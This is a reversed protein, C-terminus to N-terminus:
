WHVRTVTNKPPIVSDNNSVHSLYVVVEFLSEPIPVGVEDYVWLVPVHGCSDCCIAKPTNCVAISGPQALLLVEVSLGLAVFLKKRSVRLRFLVIDCIDARVFELLSTRGAESNSSNDKCGICGMETVWQSCLISIREM